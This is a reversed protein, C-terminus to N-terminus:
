VVFRLNYIRKTSNLQIFFFPLRCQLGGGETHSCEIIGADNQRASIARTIAGARGVRDQDLM